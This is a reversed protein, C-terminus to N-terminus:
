EKTGLKKPKAQVCLTPLIDLFIKDLLIQNSKIPNNIKFSQSLWMTREILFSLFVKKKKKKKTRENEHNFPKM